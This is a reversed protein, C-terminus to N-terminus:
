SYIWFEKRHFAQSRSNIMTDSSLFVKNKDQMTDLSYAIMRSWWLDDWILVHGVESRWWGRQFDRGDQDVLNIWSKPSKKLIKHDDSCSWRSGAVELSTLLDMRQTAWWLDDSWSGSVMGCQDVPIGLFIPSKKLIKWCRWSPTKRMRSIKWNEISNENLGDLRKSEWCFQIMRKGTPLLNSSKKLDPSQDNDLDIRPVWM